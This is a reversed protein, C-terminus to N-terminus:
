QLHFELIFTLTAKGSKFNFWLLYSLYFWVSPLYQEEFLQLLQWPLYGLVPEYSLWLESSWQLFFLQNFSLRLLHQLYFWLRQVTSYSFSVRVLKLQMSFCMVQHLTSPLSPSYMVPLKFEYRWRLNFLCLQLRHLYANSFESIAWDPLYLCM